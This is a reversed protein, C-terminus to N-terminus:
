HSEYYATLLNMLPYFDIRSQHGHSDTMFHKQLSDDRLSQNLLFLYRRMLVYLANTGLGESLKAQQEDSITLRQQDSQTSWVLTELVLPPEKVQFCITAASGDVEYRIAIEDTSPWASGLEISAFETSKLECLLNILTELSESM